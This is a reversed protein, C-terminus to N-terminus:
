RRSEAGYGLRELWDVVAGRERERNVVPFLPTM